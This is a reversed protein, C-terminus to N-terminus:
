SVVELEELESEANDSALVADLSEVGDNGAFRERLDV